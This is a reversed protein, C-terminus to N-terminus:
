QLKKIIELLDELAEGTATQQEMRITIRDGEKIVEFGKIQQDGIRYYDIRGTNPDITVGACGWLFALLIILAIKKMNDGSCRM